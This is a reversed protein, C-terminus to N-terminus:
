VRKYFDNKRIKCNMQIQHGSDSGTSSPNSNKKEFHIVTAAAHKSSQNLTTVTADAHLGISMYDQKATKM